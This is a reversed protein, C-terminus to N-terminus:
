MAKVARFFIKDSSKIPVSSTWTTGSIITIVKWPLIGIKKSNANFSVIPVNSESSYRYLNYHTGPTLGSVTITLVLSRSLPRISTNNKIEPLESNISTSLHVPFTENNNDMIGTIAIGYKKIPYKALSYIQGNRLNAKQRNNLFTTVNFLYYYPTAVGKPTYLGNDSLLVKDDSYFSNNLAYNSGFGIVPVIHDYESDGANLQTDGYLLYENNFVGVLVPHAQVVHNKVWAYFNNDDATSQIEYKLRLNKATVGDNVGLLLQSNAKNQQTRPSAIARVDYQSLYQGYYLGASIMAVEGCYGYNANWQTRPPIDNMINFLTGFSVSAANTNQNLVSMTCIM